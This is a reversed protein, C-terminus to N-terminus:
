STGRLMTWGLAFVPAAATLSDIRDLVGGHGPLLSGSDKVGADRKVRSEALDGLMAFLGTILSLSLWALLHLTGPRWALIGGLAAVIVVGLLGGLLGEMTKAPSIAPALRRRGWRRGAFYAGTDGAWVVLLLLVLAAPGGAGDHIWVLAAWCPALVLAGAVMAHGATARVFTVNRVGLMLAAYLWWLVVAPLAVPMAGPIAGLALGAGCIVVARAARARPGSAGALAAWEWAAAALILFLLAALLFTPLQLVAVVALPALVAATLVRAKLM